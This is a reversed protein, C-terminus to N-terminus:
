SNSAVDNNDWILLKNMFYVNVWVTLSVFCCIVDVTAAVAALLIGCETENRKRSMERPSIIKNILIYFKKICKEEKETYIELMVCCLYIIDYLVKNRKQKKTTTLFSINFFNKKGWKYFQEKM